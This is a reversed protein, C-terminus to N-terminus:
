EASGGAEAAVCVAVACLLLIETRDVWCCSIQQLAIFHALLM